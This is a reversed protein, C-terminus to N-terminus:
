VHLDSIADVPDALVFLLSALLLIWCFQHLWLHSLYAGHLSFCQASLAPAVRLLDWHECGADGGRFCVLSAPLPSTPANLLTTEALSATSAWLLRQRNPPRDSIRSLTIEARLHKTMESLTWQVCGDDCKGTQQVAKLVQGMVVTLFQSSFCM